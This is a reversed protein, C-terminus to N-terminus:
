DLELAGTAEELARIDLESGQVPLGVVCEVDVEVGIGAGLEDYAGGGGGGETEDLRGWTVSVQTPVVVWVMVTM